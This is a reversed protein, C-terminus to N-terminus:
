KAEPMEQLGLARYFVLKEGTPKNDTIVGTSGTRDRYSASTPYIEIEKVALYLEKPQRDFARGLSISGTFSRHDKARNLEWRDLANKGAGRGDGFALEGEIETPMDPSRRRLEVIMKRIPLSSKKKAHKRPGDFNGFVEITFDDRTTRRVKLRRQGPLTIPDAQAVESIALGQVSNPQYRVLALQVFPMGLAPARVGVDAYWMDRKESYMMRHLAVAVPPKDTDAFEALDDYAVVDVANTFDDATLPATVTDDWVPDFGWRSVYKRLAEPILGEHAVDQKILSTNTQAAYVVVGLLEDGTVNWPRHVYCRLLADRQEILSGAPADLRRPPTFSPLLHAIEPKPPRATNPLEFRQPETDMPEEDGVAVQDRFRTRCNGIIRVHRARTDGFAHSVDFPFATWSPDKISARDPVALEQADAEATYIGVLTSDSYGRGGKLNKFGTVRGNRVVADCTAGLGTGRLDHLRVIPARTYYGNNEAGRALVVEQVSGNSVRAVAAALTHLPPRRATRIAIDEDQAYGLGGDQIAVDVLRGDKVVPLLVADKTSRALIGTVIAETGYGFGPDEVVVSKIVGNSARARVKAPGFLAPVTEDWLDNWRLTLRASGTSPRHLSLQGKWVQSTDGPKRPPDGILSDWQPQRLPGTVAHILDVTLGPNNIDNASANESAVIRAKAVRAAPVRLAAGQGTKGVSLAGSVVDLKPTVDGTPWKSNPFFSISETDVYSSVEQSPAEGRSAHQLSSPLVESIGIIASKAFPDPFYNLGESSRRGLLNDDYFREHRQIAAGVTDPQKGDFEGSSLATEVDVPPPLLYASSYQIVKGNVESKRAAISEKKRNTVLVLQLSQSSAGPRDDKPDPNLKPGYGAYAFQPKELTKGSQALIPALPLDPRQFNVLRRAVLHPQEKELKDLAKKAKDSLTDYGINGALDTRWGRFWYTKGKRLPLMAGHPSCSFSPLKDQKPKKQDTDGPQPVTLWWGRWRALAESVVTHLAPLTRPEGPAFLSPAISGPSLAAPAAHAIMTRVYALPTYRFIAGEIAKSGLRDRGFPSHAPAFIRRSVGLPTVVSDLLFDVSGGNFVAKTLNQGSLASVVWKGYLGASMSVTAPTGAPPPVADPDDSTAAIQYWGKPDPRVAAFICDGPLLDVARRSLLDPTIDGIRDDPKCRLQLQWPVKGTMGSVRVICDNNDVATSVVEGILRMLTPANLFAGDFPNAPNAPKAVALSVDGRNGLLRFYGTREKKDDNEVRIPLSRLNLLTLTRTNTAASASPAQLFGAIWTPWGAGLLLGPQRACVVEVWHPLENGEQTPLQLSLPHFLRDTSDPAFTGDIRVPLDGRDDTSITIVWNLHPNSKAARAEDSLDKDDPPRGDKGAVSLVNWGEVLFVRNKQLAPDSEVKEAITNPASVVATVIRGTAAIIQGPAPQQSAPVSAPLVFHGIGSLKSKQLNTNVVQLRDNWEVVQCSQVEKREYKGKFKALAFEKNSEIQSLVGACEFGIRGNVPGLVSQLEAEIRAVKPVWALFPDDNAATGEPFNPSPPKGLVLLQIIELEDTSSKLIGDGSVVSDKLDGPKVTQGARNSIASEPCRLVPENAQQNVNKLRIDVWGTMGQVAAVSDVMGRFRFAIPYITAASPKARFRSSKPHSAFPLPLLTVKGLQTAQEANLASTPLSDSVVATIGGVGTFNTTRQQITADSPNRVYARREGEAEFEQLATPWSTSTDASTGDAKLFATLSGEFAFQFQENSRLPSTARIIQLGSHPLGPDQFANTTFVPSLFLSEVLTPESGKVAPGLTLLVRDRNKGAPPDPQNIALESIDTYDRFISRLQTAQAAPDAQVRAREAGVLPTQRRATVVFGGPSVQKAAPTNYADTQEINLTYKDLTSKDDPAKVVGKIPGVLPPAARTVSNSVYGEEVGVILNVNDKTVKLSRRCLSHWKGTIKNKDGLAVEFTMGSMIHEAYLELKYKPAGVAPAAGGNLKILKDQTDKLRAYIVEATKKGSPQQAEIIIADTLGKDDSVPLSSSKQQLERAILRTPDDQRLNFYQPPLLHFKQWLKHDSHDVGERTAARFYSVDGESGLDFHTGVDVIEIRNGISGLKLAILGQLSTAGELDFSASCDIVLGLKRMAIPHQKLRALVEMLTPDTIQKPDIPAPPRNRAQELTRRLREAEESAKQAIGVAVVLERKALGFDAGPGMSELMASVLPKGEALSHTAVKPLQSFAAAHKLAVAKAESLERYDSNALLSHIDAAQAFHMASHLELSEIRQTPRLESGGTPNVIVDNGHTPAAGGAATPMKSTKFIEALTGTRAGAASIKQTTLPAVIVNWATQAANAGGPGYGGWSVAKRLTQGGTLTIEVHVKSVAEGAAVNEPETHKRWGLRALESPWNKFEIGSPSIVPSPSHSVEFIFVVSFSIRKGDWGRPIVIPKLVMEAM